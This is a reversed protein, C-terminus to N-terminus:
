APPRGLQARRARPLRRPLTTESSWRRVRRVRTSATLADGVARPARNPSSECAQSSRRVPHTDPRDLRSRTQTTYPAPSPPACAYTAQLRSARTNHRTGYRKQQRTDHPSRQRQPPPPQPRTHPMHVRLHSLDCLYFYVLSASFCATRWRASAPVCASSLRQSALNSWSLSPVISRLTCM